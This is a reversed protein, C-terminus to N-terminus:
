GGRSNTVRVIEQFYRCTVLFPLYVFVGHAHVLDVSCSPTYKLSKGDSERSIVGYEKALWKSWDKSPEYSEYTVSPGLIELVKELYRGSGTGIEVVHRVGTLVGLEKMTDVVRQTDGQKNWITELYDCVSQGREKAARVTSRQPIYGQVIKQGDEVGLFRVGRM